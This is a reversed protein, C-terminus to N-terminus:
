EGSTAAAAGPLLRMTQMAAPLADRFARPVQAGIRQTATPQLLRAAVTPDLLADALTQQIRPEAVGNYVFQLPRGVLTGLLTSEAWSQPMGTPGLVQRLINTSALRQATPSGPGAGAREVAGLRDVENIVGRVKALQAPDMLQDLTNDPLTRGTAQQILRGEDATARAMADPMLRVNGALDHTPAAGRKLLEAATDMQNIPRSAVAYNTRAADYDPSVSKIFGVFKDRVKRIAEAKNAESATKGANEAMDDLVLKMMHLGEVSGTTDSMDIGKDSARKRTEALAKQISDSKWLERFMDAQAQTPTSTIPTKFARDYDVGAATQRATAAADRAGSTGAVDNLTRVRSANNELQRTALAAATDPDAARAADQLRAAAAAARPDKLTEALTLKAGTATPANSAGAVAAGDVGFRELTRAAIRNRGGEYFPEVLAKAGKVGAGVARGAAVGAAGGLGGVTMNKLVSDEAGTPQLAGTIAGAATAGLLGQAGPIFMSPLTAAITGTINGATGAGTNLLPADMRKQYDADAQTPLGM